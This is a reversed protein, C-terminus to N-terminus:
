WCRAFGRQNPHLWQCFLNEWRIRAASALIRNATDVICLPRTDGAFFVPCGDADVASANKPLFCLLGDNFACSGEDRYAQRLHEEAHEQQLEQLAEWLVELGTDGLGKWAQYAIGHHRATRKFDHLAYEGKMPVQPLPQSGTTKFVVGLLIPHWEVDRGYRGALEDIRTSAFYGYPSSFDFYFDLPQPM